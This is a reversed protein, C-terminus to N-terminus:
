WKVEGKRGVLRALRHGAEAAKSQAFEAVRAEIAAVITAENADAPVLIQTALHTRREPAPKPQGKRGSRPAEQQLEEFIVFHVATQGDAELTVRTIEWKMTGPRVIKKM